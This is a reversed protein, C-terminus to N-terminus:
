LIITRGKGQGELKPFFFQIKSLYKGSPVQSSKSASSLLSRSTGSKGPLVICFHLQNVIEKSQFSAFKFLGEGTQSARGVEISFTKDDASPTFNRIVKYPWTAIQVGNHSKLRISDKEIMFCCEGLFGMMGNTELLKVYTTHVNEFKLTLTTSDKIRIDICSKDKIDQQVQSIDSLYYINKGRNAVFENKDKYKIICSLGLSSSVCIMMYRRKWTEVQNWLKMIYAKIIGSEKLVKVYSNKIIFNANTAYDPTEM